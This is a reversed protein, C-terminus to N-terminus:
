ILFCLYPKKFAVSSHVFGMGTLRHFFVAVRRRCPLRRGNTNPSFDKKRYLMKKNREEILYKRNKRSSAEQEHHADAARDNVGKTNSEQVAHSNYNEILDSAVPARHHGPADNRGDENFVKAFGM